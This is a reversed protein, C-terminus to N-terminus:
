ECSIIYKKMIRLATDPYDRAMLGMASLIYDKDLLLKPKVPKLSTINDPDSLAAKLIRSPNESHVIVGGTGILNKVNSLDKGTQMFVAGMPTYVTELVGSHREMSIETAAMSLAEDFEIDEKKVAIENINNSLYLCKEYINYEQKSYKKLRKTGAAEFLSLASVRMGLDGEVTRKAYPEELGRLTVSPKTPEGYSISHIDTTAGGIDVIILDGIGDENDTGDALLQAAKLVAAPTPMLIGSIYDEVHKIGKAEIIKEMFVERIAEKAPEVNLVNLRPMVNETIKFFMENETFLEEIYDVANKNGAVVVPIGKLYKSIMEANHIICEKNGGDTGGSLLIIEPKSEIIKKIETKTIEHSYIGIVRAGAGLAARKAAEATLEPILGITIMKLGGAASSCALKDCIQIDIGELAQNMKSFADLFGDMINTTVTTISKSTAIIEEKEIDVATLKTYTSGFDILIVAKM